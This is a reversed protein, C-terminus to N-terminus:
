DQKLHCHSRVNATQRPMNERRGIEFGHTDAVLDMVSELWPKIGYTDENLHLYAVNLPFIIMFAGSSRRFCHLHYDVMRCIEIAVDHRTGEKPLLPDSAITTNAVEPNLGSLELSRTLILRIANYTMLENARYSNVFWIVSQFPSPPLPRSTEPDLGNPSITYTSAPFDKEWEWRWSYLSELSTLIRKRVSALFDEKGTRGPPWNGLNDLDELYGPIDCLIDHLNDLPLKQHLGVREWPITKWELTELFCHKRQM